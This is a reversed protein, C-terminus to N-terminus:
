SIKKRTENKRRPAHFEGGDLDFGGSVNTCLLFLCTAAAATLRHFFSRESLSSIFSNGSIGRAVILPILVKMLPSPVSSETHNRFAPIMVFLVHCVSVFFPSPNAHISNVILSTKTDFTTSSALSSQTKMHRIKVQLPNAFLKLGIIIIPKIQFLCCFRM